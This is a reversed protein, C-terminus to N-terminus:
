PRYFGNGEITTPSTAGLASGLGAGVISAAAQGFAGAGALRALLWSALAGFGMMALQHPNMSIGHQQSKELEAIIQARQWSSISYDNAIQWYLDDSIGATKSADITPEVPKPNSIVNDAHETMQADTLGSLRNRRAGPAQFVASAATGALAGNLMGHFIGVDETPQGMIWRKVKRAGNYLGGAAAGYLAGLGIGLPAPKLWTPATIPDLFHAVKSREYGMAALLHPTYHMLLGTGAGVGTGITIDRIMNTDDPQHKHKRYLKHGVGIATGTAAGRLAGFALAAPISAILPSDSITDLLNAAKHFDAMRQGSLQSGTNGKLLWQKFQKVTLATIFELGDWGASFNDLYLQRAEKETKCGVICKHGDFKGDVFQDVVFVIESDPHDGVFVDVHDDDAASRPHNRIYGYDHKLKISWPKGDRNTGSRVSGKPNEISIDLGQIWVHGKRYNGAERQADTPKRDVLPRERRLREHLVQHYNGEKKTFFDMVKGLGSQVSDNVSRLGPFGRSWDQIGRTVSLGAAVTGVPKV